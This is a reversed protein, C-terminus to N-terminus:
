CSDYSIGNYTDIDMNVQWTAAFDDIPSFTDARAWAAAVSSNAWPFTDFAQKIKDALGPSLKKSYGYSTTPFKLSTYLIRFNSPDITGEAEMQYFVADAVAAVKYTGDNVGNISNVHNGSFISTFNLGLQGRLIANPAKFGSNSGSETFTLLQGDIDGVETYDSSALTIVIMSYGYSGDAKTMMHTPQYDHCSAALLTAGSPIGGFHARSRGITDIADSYSSTMLFEVPKGTVSTVHAFLDSFQATYDVMKPGYVFRLVAPDSEVMTTAYASSAVFTPMSAVGTMLDEYFVSDIGKWTMVPEHLFPLAGFSTFGAPITMSQMSTPYTSLIQVFRKGNSAHVYDTVTSTGGMANAGTFAPLASAGDVTMGYQSVFVDILADRSAPPTYPDGESVVHLYPVRGDHSSTSSTQFYTKSADYGSVLNIYADVPFSLSNMSYLMHVMNGGNSAGGVIVKSFAGFPPSARTMAEQYAADIFASEMAYDDRDWSGRYEHTPVMGGAPTYGIVPSTQSGGMVLVTGQHDKAWTEFGMGNFAVDIGVSFGVLNILLPGSADGSTYFVVERDGITIRRAAAAADAAVVSRWWGSEAFRAYPECEPLDLTKDENGCCGTGGSALSVTRYAEKLDKCTTGRAGIALALSLFIRLMSNNNSM